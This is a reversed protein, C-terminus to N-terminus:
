GDTIYVRNNGFVYLTNVCEEYSHESLSVFLSSAQKLGMRDIGICLKFSPYVEM